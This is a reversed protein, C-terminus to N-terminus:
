RGEALAPGTAARRLFHLASGAFGYVIWVSILAKPAPIAAMMRVGRAMQRATEDLALDALFLCILAGTLAILRIVPGAFAPPLRELFVTVAVHSGTRTVEPMAMFTVFLLLYSVLDASWMTPADFAYRAVVEYVYAAVIAALAAMALWLGAATLGDHARALARMVRNMSPM